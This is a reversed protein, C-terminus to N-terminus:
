DLGQARREPQFSKRVRGSVQRWAGTLGAPMFLVTLVYLLGFIIYWRELLPHVKALDALWERALNTVGSGLIAGFLTGTGGIITMLLADITKEVSLVATSIFRMYLAYAIGALSGVVGAVVASILKFRLVDYGLFEARRENERIAILVRGAPSDIFRRLLLLVAVMFALAVYYYVLRDQLPAPVRFSFGDAGNTVGRWKEAFIFFLEAFALTIMAYYVDKVRLSLYGIILSIVVAFLITGAVAVALWGLTPATSRIILGVAYAGAGFFLAHGFSVIGTYGLLIDYSMAFVGMIYIQTLLNLTARSDTLGPVAALVLLLIGQVWVAPKAAWVAGSKEFVRSRTQAQQM